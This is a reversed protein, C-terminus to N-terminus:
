QISCDPDGFDCPGSAEQDGGSPDFVGGELFTAQLLELIGWVSVMVFLIVIGMLLFKRNQSSDGEKTKIINMASGYLYLVVGLVVLTGISYNMIAILNTVLDRYTAPAAAAAVLPLAFVLIFISLSRM